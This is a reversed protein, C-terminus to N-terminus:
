SWSVTNNSVSASMGWSANNVAEAKDTGTAVQVSDAKVSLNYDMTVFAKNTVSSDLEVSEVLNGTAAGAALIQNYYFVEGTSETNHTWNSINTEDLNINITITEDANYDPDSNDKPNYTAVVKNNASDYKLTPNQVKIPDAMKQITATFDTSGGTPVTIEALAYYKNTGNYYYGAYEVEKVTDDDYSTVREFIYLGTEASNPTFDTGLEKDADTITNGAKYVLSGGAQLSKIEDPDLEIYKSKNSDTFTIDPADYKTLVLQNSLTLKVFADINGTNIAGAEKEVTQGPLWQSPPTFSETVTVAYKNQASLKNVVEDSSTFWAFSSGAVIMAALIMSAALVKKNKSKKKTMKEIEKELIKM